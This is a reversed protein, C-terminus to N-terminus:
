LSVHTLILFWSYGKKKMGRCGWKTPVRVDMPHLKLFIVICNRSMRLLNQHSIDTRYHIHETGPFLLVKGNGWLDQQLTAPWTSWPLAVEESM